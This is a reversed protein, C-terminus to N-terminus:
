VYVVYQVIYEVKVFVFEKQVIFGIRFLKIDVRCEWYIGKIQVSNVVVYVLKCGSVFM